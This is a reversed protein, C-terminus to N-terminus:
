RAQALLPRIVQEFDDDTLEGIRAFRVVGERDLVYSRPLLQARWRATVEGQEDIPVPYDVGYKEVFAEVAARSDRHLVDVGLVLLGAARHEAYWRVLRPTEAECPGCWSAWFNVIVVQGRADALRLSGGDLTALAFDPAPMGVTPPAAQDKGPSCAALAALLGWLLVLRISRHVIIMQVQM